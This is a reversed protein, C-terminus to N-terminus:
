VEKADYNYAMNQLGDRREERRGGESGEGGGGRGERGGERWGEGERRKRERVEASGVRDVSVGCSGSQRLSYWCYRLSRYLM